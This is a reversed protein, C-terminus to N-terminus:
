RVFNKLYVTKNGKKDTVELLINHKGPGCHEDFTYILLKKKPDYEALVWKGDITARYSYIGSLNDSITFKLSSLASLNEQKKGKLDFNAPQIKPATTDVRISYTGFHKIDATVGQGTWNGGVAIVYDKEFVEVILAKDQLEPAVESFITLSIERHLPVSPDGIRITPIGAINRLTASEFVTNEYFARSPTELKFGTEEILNTTDWLLVQYFPKQLAPNASVPKKGPSRVAFEVTATNGFVDGVLYTMTTKGAKTFDVYGGNIVTDYIELENHPLLFSRTIHKNNEEWERYDVFCNIFRTKDFPIRDFRHAYITQSQRKLQVSYVGNKGRVITERDYAEIGFGIWGSVVISDSPNAFVYKAGSRVLPIKKINNKGNVFDNPSAPYIVLMVPVPPVDDKVPLGFLLPNIAEETRTDRIEFHLHPGGSGGTNGSFAILEGKKVPLEGPAPFLEIEFSEQLYQRTKTYSSISYNFRSLHAYVTTYGNPHDIYLVSGYGWASIKIRSIFGDAAAKVNMGEINHTTFDLGTHFHNPRLEGFNGSLILPIDLPSGFYDKPYTTQAFLMEPLSAPLIFSLLLRLVLNKM